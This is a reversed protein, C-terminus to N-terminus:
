LPLVPACLIPLFVPPCFISLLPVFPSCCIYLLPGLHLLILQNLLIIIIFRKIPQTNQQANVSIKYSSQSHSSFIQFSDLNRGEMCYIPRGVKM